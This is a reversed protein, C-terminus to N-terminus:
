KSHDRDGPTEDQHAIYGSTVESMKDAMGDSLAVSMRSMFESRRDRKCTKANMEDPMSKSMRDSMYEAMADSMKEPLKESM